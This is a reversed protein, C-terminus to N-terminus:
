YVMNEFYSLLQSSVRIFIPKNTLIKVNEVENRNSLSVSSYSIKYGGLEWKLGITSVHAIENIPLISIDSGVPINLNIERDCRIIIDEKSFWYKPAPYRSFLAMLALQHDLRG